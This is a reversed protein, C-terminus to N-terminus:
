KVIVFKVTQTTQFTSLRCLYVGAPLEKIDLIATYNGEARDGKFLTQVCNGRQDYMMLEVNGAIGVSYQIEAKEEHVPNPSIARLATQFEGVKVYRIDGGCVEKLLLKAPQIEITRCMQEQLIEGNLEEIKLLINEETQKALYATIEFAIETESFPTIGTAEILLEGPVTIKAKLFWTNDAGKLFKESNENFQFVKADYHIRAKFSTIENAPNEAKLSMKVVTSEGPAIEETEAKLAATIKEKQSVTVTLTKITQCNLNNTVTITYIQTKSVTVLPRQINANSLGDAPSWQFNLNDDNSSVELEAIQGICLATDRTTFVPAKLVTITVSDTATCIDGQQPITIYYTTTATPSAIPNAIHPDSLGAEPTWSCQLGIYKKDGIEVGKGLCVSTNEGAADTPLEKIRVEVYETDRCSAQGGGSVIVTYTTTQPPTAIISTGTTKNLGIAPSWEYEAGGSAKLVASSGPCIAIDPSVKAIIEGVNVLVSDISECGFENRVTLYYRTATSPSAIPQAVAPNDLAAAPTWSYTNGKLAESGLRAFGGPCIVVDDNAEAVPFGSVLNTHELTDSGFENTTILTTKFNGANEYYVPPPKEGIFESPQGGEFTWRWSDPFNDSTDKFLITNEACITDPAFGSSPIACTLYRRGQQFYSDPFYCLSIISRQGNLFLASDRYACAKGALNPQEIRALYEGQTIYIKGDRALQMALVIGLKPLNTRSARIAAENQLSVDFQALSNPKYLDLELESQGVYLKSNDPSFSVGYCADTRGNMLTQKNSVDGTTNNFDYYTLAAAGRNNNTLALHKANPSFKLFPQEYSETPANFSSIRPTKFLSDATLRFAYFINNTESHTMIWFGRGSCDVTATIAESVNDKILLTNKEEVAGLGGALSMNVVSYHFGTFSSGNTRDASTFVYYLNKNGPHPIIVASQTSSIGGALGTGNAMVQLQSNWITTGQTLFLLKGTEDCISTAGEAIKIPSLPQVVPQGTAFSIHCYEGFFWENTENQAYANTLAACILALSIIFLKM